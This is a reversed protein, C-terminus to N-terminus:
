EFKLAAVPDMKSAKRAPFYGFILGVVASVAVGGIVSLPSLFVPWGALQGVLVAASAGIALGIAGGFVCLLVAEMLFQLQVHGPSAGIAIRLGIERTRETVSVLMINMIGIGGVILSVSAIGSLLWGLARKVANEAAMMSAPDSVLFDNAAGSGIRHRQRLLATMRKEAVPVASSSVAKALIYEVSNRHVANSSGILRQKATRIPVFVVQDQARGWGSTGKEELVGIVEFPVSLVRIVQGIPDTDGFLQEATLQGLVAVKGAGSQEQQSFYRGQKLPWERIAFYSSTTGNVTTWTNRNKHVALVNGRLAPATLAIQAINAAIAEADEETLRSVAGRGTQGVGRSNRPPEIMLVNAGLTKIQESIQRQAGAAFAVMSVVSAVGVIVGLMTLFSRLLNAQLARLAVKFSELVIM